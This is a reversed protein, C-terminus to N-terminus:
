FEVIPLGTQGPERNNHIIREFIKDALTDVGDIDGPNEDLWKKIISLGGNCYREFHKVSALIREDKLSLADQEELLALLYVFGDKEDTAYTSLVIQIPDKELDEKAKFTYGVMAAFVMLDKNYQFIPKSSHSTKRACLKEVISEYKRNRYIPVSADSKREIM